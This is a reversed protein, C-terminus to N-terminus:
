KQNKISRFNNTFVINKILQKYGMNTAVHKNKIFNIECTEQRSPLRQYAYQMVTKIYCENALESTRILDALTNLNNFSEMHKGDSFYEEIKIDEGNKYKTRFRGISDYNELGLGLPDIFRHCSSCTPQSHIKLRDKPTKIPIKSTEASIALAAPPPPPVEQCLFKRAMFLGRGITAVEDGPSMGTLFGSTSLLGFRQANNELSYKQFGEGKPIFGYFKALRPSLYTYPTKLAALFSKDQEYIYDTLLLEVEKIMDVALEYNFEHFNQESRQTSLIQKLNLWESIFQVFARKGKNDSLMRDIQEDLIEKKQLLNKSALELLKEDPASHWILFSMRSALEYDNLLRSNHFDDESKEIKFLFQPSLLMAMVTYLSGEIMSGNSENNIKYINLFSNVEKETLPRRFLMLGMNNIFKIECEKGKTCTSIYKDFFNRNNNISEMAKLAFQNYKYAHDETSYYNLSSNKFGESANEIPLVDKLIEGDIFLIDTVTNIIEQNTLRRTTSFDSNVDCKSIYDNQSFLNKLDSKKKKCNLVTLFFIIYIVCHIKKLM